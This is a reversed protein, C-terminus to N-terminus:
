KEKRKRAGARKARERAKRATLRSVTDSPTERTEPDRHALTSGERGQNITIV